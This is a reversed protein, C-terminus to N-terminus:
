KEVKSDSPQTYEIEFILGKGRVRGMALSNGWNKNGPCSSRSCEIVARQYLSELLGISREIAVVEDVELLGERRM